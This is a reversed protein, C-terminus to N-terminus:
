SELTIAQLILTAYVGDSENASLSKCPIEHHDLLHIIGDKVAHAVDEGFQESIKDFPFFGFDSRGGGGMNALRQIAELYEGSRIIEISEAMHQRFEEESQQQELVLQQHEPDPENLQQSSYDRSSIAAAIKERIATRVQESFVQIETLFLLAQLETERLAFIRFEDSEDNDLLIEIALQPSDICRRISALLHYFRLPQDPQYRSYQYRVWLRLIHQNKFIDRLASELHTKSSNQAEYSFQSQPISTNLLSEKWTVLDIIIQWVPDETNPLTESLFNKLVDGLPDIIWRYRLNIAGDEQRLLQHLGNIVGRKLQETSLKKWLTNPIYFVFGSISENTQINILPHLYNFFQELNIENLILHKNVQFLRSAYRLIQAKDSEDNLQPIQTLLRERENPNGVKAITSVVEEWLHDNTTESSELLSLLPQLCNSVGGYRILSCLLNLYEEDERLASGSECISEISTTVYEAVDENVFRSIGTSSYGLQTYENRYKERINILIRIKDESSLQSPDGLDVAQEPWKEIISEFLLKQDQVFSLFVAGGALLHHLQQSGGVKIQLHKELASKPMGQALKKKLFQAILWDEIIPDFSWEWRGWGRHQLNILGSRVVNLLNKGHLTFPYDFVIQHVQQGSLRSAVALLEINEYALKFSNDGYFQRAYSLEFRIQREIVQDLSIFKDIQNAHQTKLELLWALDNPKRCHSILGQEEIWPLLGDYVNAQENDWPYKTKLCQKKFAVYDEIDDADMSQLEATFVVNEDDDESEVLTEAPNKLAFDVPLCTVLIRIGLQPSHGRLTNVVSRLSGGKNLLHEYGDLIIIPAQDAQQLELLKNPTILASIDTSVYDALSIVLAFHGREELEACICQGVYSRGRGSEAVLAGSKHDTLYDLLPELKDSM